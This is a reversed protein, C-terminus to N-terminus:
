KVPRFYQVHQRPVGDKDPGVSVQASIRMNRLLPVVSEGFQGLNSIDGEHGAAKALECLARYNIACATNAGKDGSQAETWPFRMWESATRGQNSSLVDSPVVFKASVQETGDDQQTVLIDQIVFTERWSRKPEDQGKVATSKAHEPATLFAGMKMERIFDPGIDFFRM